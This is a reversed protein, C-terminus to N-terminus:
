GTAGCPRGDASWHLAPSDPRLRYDHMARNRFCPDAVVSHGDFGSIARYADLEDAQFQRGMFEFVPIRDNQFWVNRDLALGARWDNDMRLCSETANSFINNRVVVGTTAASNQWFMLHHGNKDPRQSHGWGHGSDVCTNHEFVIDETRATEPQNWYEFSYEANWIVNNRYIINVQESIPGLGQNTLAADYIEWLRCQEVLIDQGTNWFEIGNGFRVTRDAFQQGGGIFCVDCRRVTIHRTDGGGIGHAAGFRLHLDEYNVFQCGGGDIIHRRLALEISRYKTYPPVDLYIWVQRATPDYWFDGNQHLDEPGWKKTGCESGYDLVINGVDVDLAGEAGIEQSFSRPSMRLTANPLPAPSTKWLSRGARVWSTPMHKAVSGQLIPKAGDGYAGYTIPRGEVGSKARLSGRWLDNRRFLIRAGPQFETANVRALSQWATQESHGDNGDNGVSSSVYYADTTRRAPRSITQAPNSLLTPASLGPL